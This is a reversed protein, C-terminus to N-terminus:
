GAVYLTEGTSNAAPVAHHLWGILEVAPLAGKQLIAAVHGNLLKREEPTVDKATVVVIPIEATSPASKLERVVEFGSMGPMMLDLLIVDPQAERAAMVGEQGNEALVVEYGTPKLMGVLLDRASEEDDVVLIRVAPQTLGPRRARRELWSLLARRDIPKVFYDTAGLAYGLHTDDVVSVIAVSIDRTAENQKLMRLVEWGELDPLMVDLTIAAPQLEEALALAQHGDTAVESRYGGGHLYVALLNASRADDEVILVLPLDKVTAPQLRLPVPQLGPEAADDEAQVPIEVYFSSGVGLESEVWIRGGHLEVLRRTLALGLGTGEFRRGPGSDVQQFEDFIRELDERAIGLGTDAVTFCISAEKRQATVTVRGGEQTFKIANSLLNILIQKLKGEDATLWGAELDNAELTIQKRAVLPEVTRVVHRVAEAVAIPEAFLEMRGAEVKSLDLIDNILALLHQGSEHITEM